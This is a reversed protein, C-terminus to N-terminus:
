AGGALAADARDRARRMMRMTLGCCYRALALPVCRRSASPRFGQARHLLELLDNRDFADVANEDPRVIEGGREAVDAVAIMRVHLGGDGVDHLARLLLSARERRQRADIPSTTSTGFLPKVIIVNLVANMRACPNFCIM